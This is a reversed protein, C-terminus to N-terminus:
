PWAPRDLRLWGDDPVSDQCVVPRGGVSGCLSDGRQHWDVTWFVKRAGIEEPTGSIQIRRPGVRRVALEALVERTANSELEATLRGKRAFVSVNRESGPKGDTDLELVFRRWRPHLDTSRFADDTRVTYRVWSAHGSAADIRTRVARVDLAGGTDDPDSVVTTISGTPVHAARSAALTVPEPAAASPGAGPLLACAALVAALLTRQRHRRPDPANDRSTPM